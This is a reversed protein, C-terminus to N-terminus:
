EDIVVRYFTSVKATPSKRKIKVIDGVKLALHSIAPDKSNIKPLEQGTLGYKKLLEEKEKDSIKQHEPVLVHTIDPNEAM